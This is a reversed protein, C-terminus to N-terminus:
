EGRVIRRRSDVLYYIVLCYIVLYYVVLSELLAVYSVIYRLLTFM